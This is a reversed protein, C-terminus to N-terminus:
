YNFPSGGTKNTIDWLFSIGKTILKESCIVGDPTYLTDVRHDECCHCNSTSSEHRYGRQATDSRTAVDPKRTDSM